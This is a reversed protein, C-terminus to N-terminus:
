KSIFGKCNAPGATYRFLTRRASGRTLCISALLHAGLPFTDGQGVISVLAYSKDLNSGADPRITMSPAQDRITVLIFIILSVTESLWTGHRWLRWWLNARALQRPTQDSRSTKLWTDLLLSRSYHAYVLLIHRHCMFCHMIPLSQSPAQLGNIPVLSFIFLFFLGALRPRKPGDTSPLYNQRISM